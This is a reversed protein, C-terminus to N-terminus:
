ALREILEYASAIEAVRTTWENLFGSRCSARPSFRGWFGAAPRLSSVPRYLRETPWPTMEGRVAAWPTLSAVCPLTGSHQTRSNGCAM